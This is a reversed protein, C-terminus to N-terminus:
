ITDALEAVKEKLEDEAGGLLVEKEDILKVPQNYEGEYEKILKQAEEKNALSEEISKGLQTLRKKQAAIENQVESKTRGYVSVGSMVFVLVLSFCASLLRLVGRKM